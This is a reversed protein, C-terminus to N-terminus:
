PRRPNAPFRITCHLDTWLLSKLKSTEALSVTVEHTGAKVKGPAVDFELWNEKWNGKTLLAGDFKVSVDACGAQKFQVRLKVIAKAAALDDGITLVVQRADGPKVGIPRAPNLTPIHVFDAHPYTGGAAAGLGRISAFYDHDLAALRVPSGLERWIASNPNFSNFLYVGDAGAHWANLARGRYSQVTSRLKKAMPDRVRSEDLSPYVKVDYKHGLAVSYSWDNLQFYGSSILLDLLGDRLWLELDIGVARCFEVSDPVRMAILIPKGRKMGETETMTRIRRILDSMLAREDDNCETGSIAARKFFVPHRFFDLEVGDVAYNQCVEEVYRFALDRVEPRTFDVASWAGLKPKGTETGNLWEPHEQKLKNARFM